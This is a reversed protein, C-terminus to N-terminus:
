LEAQTRLWFVLLVGTGTFGGGGKMNQGQKDHCLAFIRQKESLLVDVNGGIEPQYTSKSALCVLPPVFSPCAHKSLRMYHQPPLVPPSGKHSIRSALTRCLWRYIAGNNAPAFCCCLSKDPTITAGDRRPVSGVKMLDHMAPM